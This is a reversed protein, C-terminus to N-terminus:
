QDHLALQGILKKLDNWLVRKLDENNTIELPDCSVMINYSQLDATRMELLQQTHRGLVFLFQPQLREIIKLAEGLDEGIFELTAIESDPRKLSRLIKTYLESLLEGFLSEGRVQRVFLIRPNQSGRVKPALIATQLPRMDVNLKNTFGAPVLYSKVGLVETVYMKSDIM